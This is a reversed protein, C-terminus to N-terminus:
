RAEAVSPASLTCNVSLVLTQPNRYAIPFCTRDQLVAGFEQYRANEAPGVLIYSVNYRALVETAAVTSPTTYAQDLDGLIADPNSILLYNEDAISPRHALEDLLFGSKPAALVVSGAPTSNRLWAMADLESQTPSSGPYVGAVIAPLVSTLVFFAILLAVGWPQLRTFRSKRWYAALVSLAPAALLVFVISLLILATRLPLLQAFGTLLAVLGLAALFFVRRSRQEFSSRYLSASGLMLPVVGVAYVMGLLTFEGFSALRVTTPLSGALIGFGYRQLADKYTIITYWAALLFAFLAAETMAPTIRMKEAALILFYAVFAALFVWVLPSVFTLAAAAILARLPHEELDLLALVFAAGLPLALSITSADNLGSTFLLPSFGAFLAVLLSVGRSKTLRHAILYAIPVLTAMLINPVIKMAAAAPAVLTVLALLYYFLPPFEYRRGEYSYPDTYEPLGTKHIAETQLITFYSQYSPQATQYAVLLRLGLVLLTLGLLLLGYKTRSHM